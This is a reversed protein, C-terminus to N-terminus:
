RLIAYLLLEAVVTSAIGLLFSVVRNVTLDHRSLLYGAHADQLAVRTIKNGWSKILQVSGTSELALLANRYKDSSILELVAAENGAKLLHIIKNMRYRLLM